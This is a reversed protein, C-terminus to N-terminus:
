TAPGHFQSQSCAGSSCERQPILFLFLQSLDRRSDLSKAYQLIQIWTTVMTYIISSAPSDSRHAQLYLSNIEKFYIRREKKGVGM